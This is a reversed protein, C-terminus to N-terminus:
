RVLRDPRCTHSNNKKMEMSSNFIARPRLLVPSPSAAAECVPSPSAAAECVPLSGKADCSRTAANATHGIMCDYSANTGANVPANM